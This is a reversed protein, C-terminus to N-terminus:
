RSPEERAAPSVLCWSLHPQGYRASAQRDAGCTCTPSVSAVLLQELQSACTTFAAREASGTLFGSEVLQQWETIRRSLWKRLREIDSQLYDREAEAAEKLAFAKNSDHGTGLCSPCEFEGPLHNGTRGSGACEGCQCSELFDLLAAKERNAQALKAEAVEAREVQKNKLALAYATKKLALAYATEKQAMVYDAQLDTVNDAQALAAAAERLLVALEDAAQGSVEYYTEIACAQALLRERLSLTGSTTTDTM